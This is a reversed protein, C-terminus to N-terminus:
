NGMGWKIFYSILFGLNFILFLSPEPVGQGILEVEAGRGGTLTVTQAYNDEIDPIFNFVVNENSMVGISYPNGSIISFQDNTGTVFGNIGVTGINVVNLTLQTSNGIIVEGFDLVDTSVRIFAGTIDFYTSDSYPSWGGTNNKYRVQWYYSNTVALLNNPVIYNTLIIITEGSNVVINSFSADTSLQWQSAFHTKSSYTPVFSSAALIPTLTHAITANAPTMNSPVNIPDRTDLISASTVISTSGAIAQTAGCFAFMVTMIIFRYIIYNTTEM